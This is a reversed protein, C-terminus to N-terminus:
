GIDIQMIHQPKLIFSICNKIKFGYGSCELGSIDMKQIFIPLKGSNKM